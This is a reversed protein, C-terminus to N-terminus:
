LGTQIIGGRGLLFYSAAGYVATAILCLPNTISSFANTASFLGFAAGTGAYINQRSEESATGFHLQLYHNVAIVAISFPIPTLVMLATWGIGCFLKHVKEAITQPLTKDTIRKVERCLGNWGNNLENHAREFHESLQQWDSKQPRHFLSQLWVSM